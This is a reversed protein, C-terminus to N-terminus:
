IAASGHWAPFYELALTPAQSATVALFATIEGPPFSYGGESFAIDNQDVADGAALAPVITGTKPGTADLRLVYDHSEIM